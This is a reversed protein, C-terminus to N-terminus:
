DLGYISFVFLHEGMLYTSSDWLARNQYWMEFNVLGNSPKQFLFGNNSQFINLQQRNSSITPFMIYPDSKIETRFDYSNIWDFGSLKLFFPENTGGKPTFTIGNVTVTDPSVYYHGAQSNLVLKFITYKDFMSGLM